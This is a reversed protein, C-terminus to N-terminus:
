KKGAAMIHPSLTMLWEDKETFRLLEMMAKKTVPNERTQFYNKDLWIIGEVAIVETERLGADEFEKRLESPKHFYAKPLFLDKLGAPPYHIGTSLQKRCMYQFEQNHIMGNLLGTLTYSSYNIGWGLLTGNKRLIRKAEKISRIREERSQLHYLPGHLIVLHACEDDFPLDASAGKYCCFKKKLQSAKSRAKRIHNDVPDVLHVQHGSKSLWESYIGTGGGVDVIVSDPVNLYRLILEKNREFELPGLGRTFRDEDSIRSYFADIEGSILSTSKM